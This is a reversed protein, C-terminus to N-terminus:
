GTAAQYIAPTIGMFRKFYRTFHSQDYFGTELAINVSSDGQKLLTKARNLRVQLLYAYPSIGTHHRFARIFYSKSLHAVTALDDLTMDDAFHSNIYDKVGEVPSKEDTVTMPNLRIESFHALIKSLLEHIQIEQSLTAENQESQRHLIRLSTVIDPHAICTHNLFPLTGSKYGSEESIRHVLQPNIYMMRYCWPLDNGPHGNHIEGPQCTVVYDPAIAFNERRYHFAHVGGEVVGIAYDEHFHPAYEFDTFQAKFFEVDPIKHHKWIKTQNM